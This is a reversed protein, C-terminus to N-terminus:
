QVHNSGTRITLRDAGLQGCAANISRGRRFRIATQIGSNVLVQRFHHIRTRRSPALDTAAFPNFEILNVNVKLGELIRALRRAQDPSDNVMQIMCYEITVRRGTKHQYVEAAGLIEALSYKNAIPMLRSRLEDDPAHLSIALRFQMGEDAMRIIGEPIGCTSITIKRQGINMGHKDNLLRASLLVADYNDFPEGMGMYVVNHIKIGNAAIRYVQDLIEATSLQGQFGIHGTACLLCGMRCGSQCSICLTNRDEDRLLVSETRLGGETLFVFKMTGDPDELIQKTQISSIYFGANALTQRFVKPLPTVQAIDTVGKAHIFSFLCGAWYPKGGLGLVLQELQSFPIQKLDKKM